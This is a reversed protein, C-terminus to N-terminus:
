RFRCSCQPLPTRCRELNQSYRHLPIKKIKIKPHVSISRYLKTRKAKRRVVTASECNCVLSTRRIYPSCILTGCSSTMFEHYRGAPEVPVNFWHLILHISLLDNSRIWDRGVLRRGHRRTRRGAAIIGRGRCSESQETPPAWQVRGENSHLGQWYSAAVRALQVLPLRM